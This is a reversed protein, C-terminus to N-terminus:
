VMGLAFAWPGFGKKSAAEVRSGALVANQHGGISEFEVM